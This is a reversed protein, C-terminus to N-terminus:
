RKFIDMSIGLEEFYSEVNDMPRSDRDVTLGPISIGDLDTIVGIISKPDQTWLNFNYLYFLKRNDKLYANWVGRHSLAHKPILTSNVNRNDIYDNFNVIMIDDSEYVILASVCDIVKDKIDSKKLREPIFNISAVILDELTKYKKVTSFFRKTYEKDMHSFKFSIGELKEKEEETANDIWPKQWSLLESRFKNLPNSPGKNENIFNNYNTIFM